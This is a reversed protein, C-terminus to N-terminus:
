KILKNIIPNLINITFFKDKLITLIVFYYISCTICTVLLLTLGSPVIKSIMMSIPIFVMSILFYKLIKIIQLNFSIIKKCFYFTAGTIFIETFVTAFAAGYGSYRPILIFNLTFNIIAGFVVVIMLQKEKNSPVLIQLGFINNLGILFILPLLWIMLKSSEIFASGAFLAIIDSSTLFLGITTPISIILIFNISKEIISKVEDMKKEEIFLSIKPILVVGLSTVIILITKILKLSTAYYGVEESSTFYKLMIVDLNIYIGIAIQTSFLILLPKFHKKLNLNEFKIKAFRRSYVLSITAGFSNSFVLIGYYVWYDEPNKVILYLLILTLIKIFGNIITIYKYKEIGQYFWNILGLSSIIQIYSLYKLANENEYTKTLYLWLTFFILVCFTWVIQILLLESFTKSLNEPNKKAKAIERIGYIPIGLSCLIIFTSALSIAFSTVGVGSAGLVRAIYPFTLLPILINTVGLLSNYTFNRRTKSM